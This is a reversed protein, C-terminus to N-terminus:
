KRTHRRVCKTQKRKTPRAGTIAEVIAATSKPEVLMGCPKGELDTLMDKVAARPCSIVMRTLSMAEIISIPFAEWPYYTPLAM